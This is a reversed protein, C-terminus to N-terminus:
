LGSGPTILLNGDAATAITRLVKFGLGVYIRIQSNPLIPMGTSTTPATGAPPSAESDYTTLMVHVRATASTNTLVIGDRDKPLVVASTASTANVVSTTSGWAPTFPREMLRGEM